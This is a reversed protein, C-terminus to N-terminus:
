DNSSEETSPISHKLHQNILAHARAVSIHPTRLVTENLLREAEEYLADRKQWPCYELGKRHVAGLSYKHSRWHLLDHYVTWSSWGKADELGIAAHWERLTENAVEFANRFESSKPSSGSMTMMMRLLYVKGHWDLIRHIPAFSLNTIERASSAEPDELEDIFEAEEIVLLTALESRSMQINKSGGLEPKLTLSPGGPEVHTIRHRIGRLAVVRGQQLDMCILRSM